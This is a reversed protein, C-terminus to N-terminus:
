VFNYSPYAGLRMSGGLDSQRNRREVENGRTWETMLGVVHGGAHQFEAVAGLDLDPRNGVVAGRLGHHTIVEYLM